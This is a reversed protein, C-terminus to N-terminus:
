GCEPEDSRARMSAEGLISDLGQVFTRVAGQETTNTPSISEDSLAYLVFEYVNGCAGSGTFAEDPRFSAQRAGEPMSPMGGTPLEAPLSTLEGPINWMVWHAMGNTLDQFVLVYSQTGAPPNTWNLEPSVDDGFRTNDVPFVDCAEADDEPGCGELSEFAPSTLTFDGSGGASGANGAIGGAGAGSMGSAGAGGAGAGGAGSSGSAGGGSAGGNGAGAAGASGASGAMGAGGDASGASGAGGGLGGTSGASGGSAAGASGGKGAGGGGSVGAQGSTGASGAAGGAPSTGSTGASGEPTSEDSCGLLSTAGLLLSFSAFTSLRVRYPAM